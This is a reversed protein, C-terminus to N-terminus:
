PSLGFYIAAARTAGAEFGAVAPHFEQALFSMM